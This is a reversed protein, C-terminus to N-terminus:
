QETHPKGQGGCLQTPPASKGCRKVRVQAKRGPRYTKQPVKRRVIGGMFARPGEQVNDPVSSQPTRVKRGDRSSRGDPGAALLIMITCASPSPCVSGVPAYHRKSNKSSILTLDVDARWLLEGRSSFALLLPLGFM